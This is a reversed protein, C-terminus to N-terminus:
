GTNADYGSNFILAAEAKHFNAIYAELEEIQKTNGSLLRSGTSGSAHGAINLISGTALGLYDNSFFDIPARKTSLKRLKGSDRREQLKEEIHREVPGM